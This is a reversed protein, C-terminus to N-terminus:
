SNNIITCSGVAELSLVGSPLIYLIVIACIVGVIIKKPIYQPILSPTVWSLAGYILIVFVFVQIVYVMYGALPFSPAHFFTFALLGLPVPVFIYSAIAAVVLLIRNRLNETYNM